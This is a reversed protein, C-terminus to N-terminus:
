ESVGAAELAAHEADYITWSVCAGGEWRTVLWLEEEFSPPRNSGPRPARHWVRLVTLDGLDYAEDIEIGLGPFADLLVEWRERMPDYSGGAGM